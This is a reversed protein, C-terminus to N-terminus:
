PSFFEDLGGDKYKKQIALIDEICEFFVEIVRPDFHKGKGDRLIQLAEDNSFAPKYPRESTVADFVDAVACIRGWLPIDSGVLGAPYGRGDWREHHNLAIVKGAQLIQSSSNELIRSGISSHQRMVKWEHTDLEAPKRLIAEPVAIKGVDHMRSAHLILEVESPPLKLGRAIVASYESMRQIHRGTVKDKYEALIALREVTELQAQYAMRQAEAMHELAKRLSATREECMTELHNQYRRVEDQAAKMKLLSTTRVRLETEDVPKAIFDNAGAEVAHLRHERTELTTVMIVPIDKGTPDQRIRRCVDFGDLGPMVVDLLVLDVGLHLKALGELGDRASEVDHGLGEVLMQTIKRIGEDDDIVLVRRRGVGPPPQQPHSTHMGAGGPATQTWGVLAKRISEIGSELQAVMVDVHDLSGARATKVLEACTRAVSDAGVIAVSGQLSHAARYLAERDGSAAAKRVAEMQGSSESMLSDILQAVLGRSGRAELSRLHRTVEGAPDFPHTRNL